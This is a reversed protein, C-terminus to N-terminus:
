CKKMTEIGDNTMTYNDDILYCKNTTKFNEWGVLDCMNGVLTYGDDYETSYHKCKSCRM